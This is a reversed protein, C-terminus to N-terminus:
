VTQNCVTDAIDTEFLAFKATVQFLFYKVYDDDRIIDNENAQHSYFLLSSSYM